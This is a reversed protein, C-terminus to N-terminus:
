KLVSSLVIQDYVNRPVYEITKEIKEIPSIQQVYGILSLTIGIIFLILAIRM